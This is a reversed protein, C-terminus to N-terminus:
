SSVKIAATVTTYIASASMTIPQPTHNILPELEPDEVREHAIDSDINEHTVNHDQNRRCKWGNSLYLKVFCDCFQAFTIGISVDLMNITSVISEWKYLAGASLVTLYLLVASELVRVTM